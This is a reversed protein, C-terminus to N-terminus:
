LLLSSFSYIKGLSFSFSSSSSPSPSPFSFWVRSCCPMPACVQSELGQSASAPLDPTQLWGSHHVGMEFIALAPSTAWCYLVQSACLLGQNLGWQFCPHKKREREGWWCDRRSLGGIEKEYYVSAIRFATFDALTPTIGLAKHLITTLSGKSPLFIIFSLSCLSM